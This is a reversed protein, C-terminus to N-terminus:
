DTRSEVDLLFAESDRLADRVKDLLLDIENRRGELNGVAYPLLDDVARTLDALRKVARGLEKALARDFEVTVKHEDGSTAMDAEETGRTTM